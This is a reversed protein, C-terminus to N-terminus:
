PPVRSYQGWTSDFVYILLVFCGVTGRGPRSNTRPNHLVLTGLCLALNYVHFQWIINKLNIKKEDESQRRLHWAPDMLVPSNAWNISGVLHKRNTDGFPRFKRDYESLAAFLPDDVSDSREPNDCYKGIEGALVYAGTLSSTTGMGTAPSPCYAADGLLVVRGRSWSDLRVQGVEQSYFDNAAEDNQM